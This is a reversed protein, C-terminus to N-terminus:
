PRRAPEIGCMKLRAAFPIVSKSDVFATDREVPLSALNGCFGRMQENTLYVAVNSAYFARVLDHHEHVYAGVRRIAGVGGFDGVVPVIVNRQHMDKVVRFSAEDALFSRIEGAMDPMTMLRRYSTRITDKAVTQSIWYDIAPGHDHFAQLARDIANFDSQVLPLARTKLLQERVLAKTRALLAPSATVREFAAFMAEAGAGRSLRQPEPMSFLRSVFAIRDVSLEFLAKYLLHLDANERRIDIIFAMRPRLRAIYTFNQEPGVGIYVGGSPRLWRANEAIRPENSLYNEAFNVSRSPESFTEFMRWFEQDSLAAPLGSDRACGMSLVFALSAACIILAVRVSRADYRLSTTEHLPPRRAIAL